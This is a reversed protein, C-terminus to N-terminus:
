EGETADQATLANIWTRTDAAAQEIQTLVALAGDLDNTRVYEAITRQLNRVRIVARAAIVKPDDVPLLAVARTAWADQTGVPELTSRRFKTSTHGKVVIQTATIREVTTIRVSAPKGQSTTYVAVLAGERIWDTDTQRTM